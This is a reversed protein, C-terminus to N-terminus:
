QGQGPQQNPQGTLVRRRAAGQAGQMLVNAAASAIPRVRNSPPSYNLLARVYDPAQPMSKTLIDGLSGRAQEYRQAQEEAAAERAWKPILYSGPAVHPSYGEAMRNILLSDPNPTIMQGMAQRAYTQSNDRVTFKTATERMLRDMDQTLEGTKDPGILHTLRQQNNEALLLNKAKTDPFRTEGVLDALDARVGYGFATRQPGNLQSVHQAMLDPDLDRWKRGLDVADIISSRDAYAQDAAALTDRVASDPHSQLANVLNTKMNLAIRAENKDGAALAKTIRGDLTQKVYSWAQATPWDKDPGTTFFSVTTPQRESRLLRNADKFLGEQEFFQALDKLEPTPFIKTSRWANYLPSAADSRADELFKLYDPMNIKPGLANDLARNVEQPMTAYRQEIANFIKTKGEGPPGGTASALGTLNHGFEMLFGRPGLENAKDIIQQDTLGDARAAEAAWKLAMPDLDRLLAQGGSSGTLRQLLETGKDSLVGIGHGAALSTFPIAASMIGGAAAAQYPNQGRAYADAASLTAGSGAALFPRAMLPGTMGLLRSGVSTAAAPATALSGGLVEAGLANIPYSSEFKQQAPGRENLNREYAQGFSEDPKRNFLSQAASVGQEGWAGAVPVGKAMSTMVGLARDSAPVYVDSLRKQLAAYIDADSMSNPFEFRRGALPSDSMPNISFARMNNKLVSTTDETVYNALGSPMTTPPSGPRTTVQLSPPIAYPDPAAPIAPPQQNDAM